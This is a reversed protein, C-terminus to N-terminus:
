SPRACPPSASARSARARRTRTPCTRARWTRTAWSPWWCITSITPSAAALVGLSELKQAHQISAELRLRAEEARKRATIDEYTGMIGIIEGDDDRLPIKSTRLWITDGSPTTQPEEYDLKPVGSEIVARDDARYLEAQDRWGVERDTLGLIDEPRELGADKAFIRNCGLYVSDRDKWFVRAPDHRSGDPAHAANRAPGRRDARTRHRGRLHGPRRGRPRRRRSTPVQERQGLAQRRRGPPGVRPHRAEGPQQGDGRPRRGSLCQRGRAALVPGPRNPRRDARARRTGRHRSPRTAAWTPATATRGSCPRPCPTSSTPSCKGAPAERVHPSPRSIM